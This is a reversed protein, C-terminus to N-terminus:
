EAIVHEVYEVTGSVDYGHVCADIGGAANGVFGDYCPAFTTFVLTGAAADAVVSTVPTCADVFPNIRKCVRVGRFVRCAGETECREYEFLDGYQGPLSM